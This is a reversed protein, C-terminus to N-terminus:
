KVGMCINKIKNWGWVFKEAGGGSLKKEFIDNIEVFNRQFITFLFPPPPPIIKKWFPAGATSLTRRPMEFLWCQAWGLRQGRGSPAILDSSNKKKKLINMPIPSCSYISLLKLINMPIPSCSYISLYNWFICPYQHVRTFVLTIEFCEHTNSFM